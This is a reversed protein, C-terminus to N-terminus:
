LCKSLHGEKSLTILTQRKNKMHTKSATTTIRREGRPMGDGDHPRIEHNNAKPQNLCQVYVPRATEMEGTAAQLCM